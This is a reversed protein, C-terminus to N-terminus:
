TKILRTEDPSSLVVLKYTDPEQYGMSNTRIVTVNNQNASRIVCPHWDNDEKDFYQWVGKLYSLGQERIVAEARARDQTREIIYGFIAQAEWIGGPAQVVFGLLEGDDEHKIPIKDHNM